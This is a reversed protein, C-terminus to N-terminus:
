SDRLPRFVKDDNARISELVYAKRGSAPAEDVVEFRISNDIGAFDSEHRVDVRSTFADESLPWPSRQRLDHAAALRCRLTTGKVKGIQAVYGEVVVAISGKRKEEAGESQGEAV